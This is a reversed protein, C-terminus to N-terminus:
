RGLFVSRISELYEFGYRKTPEIFSGEGFENWCCIIATRRTLDPFEDMAVKAAQLHLRFSAPSSESGDHPDVVGQPQWPRKDWGSSVPVFYPLSSNNLIWRWSESYGNTLETYNRSSSRAERIGSFGHHYNYATAAVYGQNVLAALEPKVADVAGVFSIGPLGAALAMDDARKLLGKATQGFSKANSELRIPSFIVVMPKGNLRKFEPDRFYNHIWYKVMADFQDLSQPVDSHNAWMITYGVGFRDKVSRYSDIAQNLRTTNKATWYWDYVIFNVGYDKMWMLHSTTVSDSGEDYWGLYPEREPFKKIPSWPRARTPEADDKWGPFYFVGIDYSQAQCIPWIFLLSAM